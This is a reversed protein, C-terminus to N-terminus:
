CAHVQRVWLVYLHHNTFIVLTVKLSPLLKFLILYNGLGNEFKNSEEGQIFGVM